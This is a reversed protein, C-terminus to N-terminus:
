TISGDEGFTDQMPRTLDFLSRLRLNLVRCLDLDLSAAGGTFGALGALLFLSANKEVTRAMKRDPFLDSDADLWLAGDRHLSEEFLLLEIAMDRSM